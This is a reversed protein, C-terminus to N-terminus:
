DGCLEPLTWDDPPERRRKARRAELTALVEQLKPDSLPRHDLRTGKGHNCGRCALALNDVDDTGGHNKPLIHELTASSPAGDLSVVIRRNCHICKGVLAPGGDVERRDFTRDTAAALILKRRTSAASM